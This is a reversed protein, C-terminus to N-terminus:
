RRVACAMVIGRPKCWRRLARGAWCPHREVALYLTDAARGVREAWQAMSKQLAQTYTDMCATDARMSYFDCYPCKGRCFPIHLYLGISKVM